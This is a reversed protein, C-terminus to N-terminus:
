TIVRLEIPDTLGLDFLSIHGLIIGLINNFDHAVGGALTGLSEFKQAQILQLELRQKRLESQKLENEVRARQARARLTVIGFALDGALEEMLRVEESTIVNPEGSYILLVGIVQTQEEKLPLAIGSRYGRQLASERWPAMRADTAFDQVFVLEGSRIAIGAPGQGRKNDEAWSLKADAIYGSEFGAWAAPRITKAEDHETYGVWALRYGAVDCIIRCVEDLLTQEDVARLLVQNCSSIARLERNMRRLAEEALKRETIDIGTGVLGVVKGAEDFLPIKSTLGWTKRGKKNDHLEERNILPKGTQIVAQDDEFYPVAMDPPFIELDTKGLVEGDSIFERMWKMDVPNAVLKRYSADKVYVAIPLNDILTRLLNREYRLATENKVQETIDMVNVLMTCPRENEASIYSSVAINLCKGTLTRATSEGSYYHEGEAILVLADQFSRLVIPDDLDLTSALSGMLDGKTKAEYLGLTAENVDLVKIMRIARAIFDPYEQLYRNFDTVGQARLSQLATRLETIDEEWLSVAANEFMTRYRKESSRVTEEAQRTVELMTRLEELLRGREFSLTSVFGISGGALGVVFGAVLYDWVSSLIGKGLASEVLGAVVLLVFGTGAGPVVGFLLGSLVVPVVLVMSWAINRTVGM